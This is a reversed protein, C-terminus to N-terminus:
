DPRVPNSIFDQTQRDGGRQACKEWLSPDGEQGAFVGSWEQAVM